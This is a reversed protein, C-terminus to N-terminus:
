GAAQADTGGVHVTFGQGRVAEAAADVARTLISPDPEGIDIQVGLTPQRFLSKPANVKVAVARENQALDGPYARTMRMGGRDDIVIWGAYEIETARVISHRAM